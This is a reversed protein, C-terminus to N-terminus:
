WNKVLIEGSKRRSAAFGAINKQVLYKECGWEEAIFDVIEDDIFSLLFKAGVSHIKKLLGSLRETDQHNFHGKVYENFIRGESKVYPPDLYVFDGECVNESIISYFDGYEIRTDQLRESCILLDDCTPYNGRGQSAYPVNFKGTKNTRFLGNFCNRNLYLMSAARDLVDSESGFRTRIKLYTEKDRPPVLLRRYLEIPHHKVQTFLNVVEWNLDSILASSPNLHFFLAGSGVFPELYRSYSRPSNEALKKVVSRKSGAWRLFPKASAADNTPNTQGGVTEVM